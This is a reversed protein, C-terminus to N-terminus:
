RSQARGVQAIDVIRPTIGVEHLFRRLGAQSVRTTATNTLPHFNVYPAAALQSDLVFSVERASDNLLAFPTVSGPTVGLADALRRPSAFSLRRCQLEVALAKLDILADDVASVLWLGTKADTLFLNKTHAGQLAKKVDEGEGVRFIPRHDITVHCIGHTELFAMLDERTRM